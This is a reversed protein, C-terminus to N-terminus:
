RAKEAAAAPKPLTTVVTRSTEKFYTRAVQQLDTQTVQEYKDWVTNILEPQNYYVAFHGLANARSRTSYLQQARQRRIQMQVKEIEEPSMPVGALAGFNLIAFVLLKALTKRFSM